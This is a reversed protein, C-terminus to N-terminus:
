GVLKAVAHAVAALGALMFVAALWRLSRGRWLAGGAVLTCVGVGLEVSYTAIENM